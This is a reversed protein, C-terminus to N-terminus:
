RSTHKPCNVPLPAPVANSNQGRKLPLGNNKNM